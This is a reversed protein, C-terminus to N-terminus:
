KFTGVVRYCLIIVNKEQLIRCCFNFYVHLSTEIFMNQWLEFFIFAHILFNLCDIPNLWWLFINFVVDAATCQYIIIKLELLYNESAELQLDDNSRTFYFRIMRYSLYIPLNTSKGIEQKVDVINNLIFLIKADLSRGKELWRIIVLM